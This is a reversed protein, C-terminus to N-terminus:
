CSLHLRNIHVLQIRFGFPRVLSLATTVRKALHSEVQHVRCDVDNKATTWGFVVISACALERQYVSNDHVTVIINYHVTNAEADVYTTYYHSPVPSLFFYECWWWRRRCRWWYSRVFSLWILCEAIIYDRTWHGLIIHFSFVSLTKRRKIRIDESM